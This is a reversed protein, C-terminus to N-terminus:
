CERVNEFTKSGTQQNYPHVPTRAHLRACVVMFLRLDYRIPTGLYECSPFQTYRARVCARTVRAGHPPPPSLTACSAHFTGRIVSILQTLQKSRRFRARASRRRIYFIYSPVIDRDRALFVSIASGIIRVHSSVLITAFEGLLIGDPIRERERERGRVRARAFCLLWELLHLLSPHNFSKM